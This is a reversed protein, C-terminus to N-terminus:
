LKASLLLLNEAIVVSIRCTAKVGSGDIAMATITAMGSKLGKVNGSQDVLAVTPADSSWYVEKLTANDPTITATLKVTSNTALNMAGKNLEIKTVPNEIQKMDSFEGWVDAAWYKAYSDKSVYLPCSTTSFTNSAIVPPTTAHSVIKKTSYSNNTNLIYDGIQEVEAGIVFTIKKNSDFVYDTAGTCNKANYFVMELNDCGNFARSGISTVSNSIEVATLGSCHAFASSGISTVSNPIEVATLGDCRYFAANGISTVSNGISVATLGSCEYFAWDGISTVSNPIDVAALSSCGKFADWGISTVSTGISVATLGSCGEFARGGISTVSNPIEVATLGSCGYFAGEDISTVSNPIEVSTLGSCDYFALYGISTVSYTKGKYTVKSPITVTGTYYAYYKRIYTVSATKSLDNKNYYIGDVEFDYATATTASLLLVATAALRGLLKAKM